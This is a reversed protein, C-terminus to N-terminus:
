LSVLLSLSLSVNLSVSRGITLSWSLSLLLSTCYVLIVMGVQETAQTPVGGVFVKKGGANLPVHETLNQPVALKCDVVKEDLIHPGNRM